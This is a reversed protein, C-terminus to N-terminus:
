VTLFFLKQLAKRCRDGCEGEGLFEYLERWLQSAQVHKASNLLKYNYEAIARAKGFEGHSILRLAEAFSTVTNGISAVVEIIQRYDNIDDLLVKLIGELIDRREGEVGKVMFTIIFEKLQEPNDALEVFRRCIDYNTGTLGKCPDVNVCGDSSYMCILIRKIELPSFQVLLARMAVEFVEKLERVGHVVMLGTLLAWATPHNVIFRKYRKYEELAKELDGEVVHSAVFNAFVNAIGIPDMSFLKYKITNEANTEFLKIAEEKRGQIFYARAMLNCPLVILGPVGFNQAEICAKEADDAAEQANVGLKILAAYYNFHMDLESLLLYLAEKGPTLPYKLKLYSALDRAVTDVDSKSLTKLNDLANKARELWFDRNWTDGIMNYLVALKIGLIFEILHCIAGKYQKCIIAVTVVTLTLVDPRSMFFEAHVEELFLALEAWDLTAKKNFKRHFLQRDLYRYLQIGVAPDQKKASGAIALAPGALGRNILERILIKLERKLYKVSGSTNDIASLILKSAKELCNSLKGRAIALSGITVLAYILANYISLKKRNEMENYVESVISCVDVIDAFSSAKLRLFRKASRPMVGGVTLWEYLDNCEDEIPYKLVLPYPSHAHGVALAFDKPCRRVAERLSVSKSLANFFLDEPKYNKEEPACGGKFIVKSEKNLEKVQNAWKEMEKVIEAIRTIENVTEKQKGARKLEEALGGQVIGEIVEEVIDEHWRAFWNRIFAKDDDDDIKELPNEYCNVEIEGNMNVVPVKELWKPPIPGYKAMVLFPITLKKFLDINGQFVTKYLYQAIFAKANGAGARVAEEVDKINCENKKLWEGAYRAVLTYGGQYREAIERGLREYVSDKCTGGSYAKVIDALFEEQRLDVNIVHKKIFESYEKVIQLVDELIDSSLVIVVPIGGSKNLGVLESIVAAIDSGKLKPVRRLGKYHEPRSPDYYLILQKDFRKQALEQFTTTHEAELRSVGYVKYSGRSLVEALTYRALVSKGVGKPGTLVILEGLAIRQKIEEVYRDFVSSRVLTYEDNDVRFVGKKLDFHLDEPNRYIRISGNDQYQNDQYQSLKRELADVSERLNKIEEEIRDLRSEVEEKYKKWKEDFLKELEGRFEEDSLVKKKLEEVEQKTVIRSTAINYMNDIFNKFTEVDLGWENAVEDVITEFREDDIYARAEIVAKLLEAMSSLFTNRPEGRRSLEDIMRKTAQKLPEELLGSALKSTLARIFGDVQNLADKPDVRELLAQFLPLLVSGGLAYGFAALPTVLLAKLAENRARSVTDRIGLRGPSLKRLTEVGRRTEEESKELLKLSIGRKEGIVLNYTVIAINPYSMGRRELHSRYIEPLFHIVVRGTGEGRLEEQLKEYLAQAEVTSGLVVVIRRGELAEALPKGGKIHNFAEEVGRDSLPKKDGVDVNDYLKKYLLFEVGEVRSAIRRVVEGRSSGPTVLIVVSYGKSFLGEISEVAECLLRDYYAEIPIESCSKSL